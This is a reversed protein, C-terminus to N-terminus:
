PAVKYAALTIATTKENGDRLYSLTIKDGPMYEGILTSVSGAAGVEVGGVKTIIDGSKLGAHAAPSGLVVPQGDESYIYAGQKAALHNTKALVPTIPVYKVGIYSREAKANKIINNLMGKVSSIPIAFGLSNASSAIATNIGIVDGAANILPGGSNGSNIATDTQIMDSLTERNSGSADSASITRGTGSIIGQSVSNQYVGLANGIALVPQGVHVTKSDGLPAPPLDKANKLKLFAVDNLPDSGVVSVDDYIDGADTIVSLKEADAIVHKNTMIYGDSSVIIGTGASNALASSGFFDRTVTKGVISVVSPALKQAVHSIEKNKFNASNGKYDSPTAFQINDDKLYTAAAFICALVALVCAFSALATNKGHTSLKTLNQNKDEM